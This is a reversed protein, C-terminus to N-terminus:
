LDKAVSKKIISSNIPCFGVASLRYVPVFFFGMAPPTMPKATIKLVFETISVRNRKSGTGIPM